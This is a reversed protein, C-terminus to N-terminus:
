FVMIIQHLRQSEYPPQLVPIDLTVLAYSRGELYANSQIIESKTSWISYYAKSKEKLLIM